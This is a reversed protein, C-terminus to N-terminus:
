DNGRERLADILEDARYRGPKTLLRAAAEPSGLPVQVKHPRHGAEIMAANVSLEEADVRRALDPRNKMLRRMDRAAGRHNIPTISRDHHKHPEASALDLVQARMRPVDALLGILVEPTTNLQEEVFMRFDLWTYDNGDLPDRYSRWHDDDLLVGMAEILDKPKAVRVSKRAKHVYEGIQVPDTVHHLPTSM